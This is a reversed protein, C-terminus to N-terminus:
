GGSEYSFTFGGPHHLEGYVALGTLAVGCILLLVAGALMAATRATRHERFPASGALDGLTPPKLLPAAPSYRTIWVFALTGVLGWAIQNPFAIWLGGLGCVVIGILVGGILHHTSIRQEARAVQILAIAMALPVASVYALLLVGPIGGQDLFTLYALAGFVFVHLGLSLAHGSFSRRPGGIVSDVAAPSQM